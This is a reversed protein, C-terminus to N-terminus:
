FRWDLSLIWNRDIGKHAIPEILAEAVVSGIDLTLGSPHYTVGMGLALFPDGFHKGNGADATDGCVDFGTGTIRGQVGRRPLAATTLRDPRALERYAARSIRRHM